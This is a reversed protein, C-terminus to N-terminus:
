AGDDQEKHLNVRMSLEPKGEFMLGLILTTSDNDLVVNSTASRFPLSPQQEDDTTAGVYFGIWLRVQQGDESVEPRLTLSVDSHELMEAVLSEVPTREVATVERPTDIVIFYVGCGIAVVLSGLMLRSRNQNLM